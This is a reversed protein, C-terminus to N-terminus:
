SAAGRRGKLLRPSKQLSEHCGDGQADGANGKRYQGAIGFHGPRGTAERQYRIHARCVACIKRGKRCLHGDVGSAGGGAEAGHAVDYRASELEITHADFAGMGRGSDCLRCLAMVVGMGAVGRLTM